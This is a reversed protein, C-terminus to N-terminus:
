FVGNSFFIFLWSQPDYHNWGFEIIATIGPVLFYPTMYELQKKSFCTWEVTARRYHEKQITLQVKEIEPPPVHIPYDANNLDNDITHPTNWNNPMYGIISPTGESTNFGYDHYFNKGGFFVFGQKIDKADLKLPQGNADKRIDGNKDTQYERGMGNSCFRVWPSMAGRYKQWDGTEKDWGGQEAAVFKFSRNIKRRDLENQISIPINSPEWPLLPADIGTSILGM